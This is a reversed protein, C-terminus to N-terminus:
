GFEEACAFPSSSKTDGMVKKMGSIEKYVSTLGSLVGDENLVRGPELGLVMHADKNMVEVDM